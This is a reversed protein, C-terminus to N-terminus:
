TTLTDRFEVDEADEMIRVKLLKFSIGYKGGARWINNILIMCSIKTSFNVLKGFEEATPYELEVTDEKTQDLVVKINLQSKWSPLKLRLVPVKNRKQHQICSLFNDKKDVKNQRTFADLKTLFLMLDEMEPRGDTRLSLNISYKRIHSDPNSYTELGFPCSSVPTEFICRKGNFLVPLYSDNKRVDVWKGVKFYKMDHILESPTHSQRKIPLWPAEEELGPMDKEELAANLNAHYQKEEDEEAAIEAWTLKKPEIPSNPPEPADSKCALHELHCDNLLTPSEEFQLSM